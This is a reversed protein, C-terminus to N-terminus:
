IHLSFSILIQAIYYLLSYVPHMWNEKKSLNYLVLIIDSSLFMISGLMFVLNSSNINTCYVGVSFLTMMSIIICYVIGVVWYVKSFKCRRQLLSFIIAGVFISLIVCYFCYDNSLPFLAKIYVIHGVLFCLTGLLFNTNKAFLNRLGLFLDGLGDLSLGLLIYYNFISDNKEYAFYGITIFCASAIIKAIVGIFNKGKAKCIIYIVDFLLCLFMLLVNM